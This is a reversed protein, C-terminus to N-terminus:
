SLRAAFDNSHTGVRELFRRWREGPQTGFQAGAYTRDVKSGEIMVSVRQSGPHWKAGPAPSRGSRGPAARPHFTVLHPRVPRPDAARKFKREMFFFMAMTSSSRAM